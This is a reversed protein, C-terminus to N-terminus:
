KFLMRFWRSNHCKIGNAFLNSTMSVELDYMKTKRKFQSISKVTSTEWNHNDCTIIEDGVKIDRLPIYRGNVYFLHEDSAKVNYGNFTKLNYITKVGSKWIHDIPAFVLNGTLDSQSLVEVDFGNNFLEYIERITSTKVDDGSVSEFSGIDDTYVNANISISNNISNTYVNLYKSFNSVEIIRNTVIILLETDPHLCRGGPLTYEPVVNMALKPYRGYKKQELLKDVEGEYNKKLAEMNSFAKQSGEEGGFVQQPQQFQLCMMIQRLADKAASYLVIPIYQDSINNISYHSVPPYINVLQVANNLFRDLEEDTFWKFNYDVNIQEQPMLIDSFRVKGNPYDVEIGSSVLEKNKYVKAGASQNWNKFSFQFSRNDYSPKSQEYYIPISQACAIHHELAARFASLRYSYCAPVLTDAETIMVNQYEHREIEEVYYEWDIVYTGVPNIAEIDWSYIYFGREAQFPTGTAVVSNLSADETPGTVTCTIRYPDIPAGDFTTIKLYLCVSDGQKFTGKFEAIANVNDQLGDGAVDHTGVVIYTYTRSVSSGGITADIVIIYTKYLEFKSATLDVQAYYLGLTDDDKLMEIDQLGPVINGILTTEEYVSYTPASDAWTPDDGSNLTRITFTLSKNLIGQNPCAM